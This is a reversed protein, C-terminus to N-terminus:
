YTGTCILTQHSTYQGGPTLSNVNVLYSITYTTQGSSKPAEAITEGSVYRYHNPNNYGPAAEGYGFQGNDPNHGVSSPSINAVLNIGFQEKGAQSVEAGGPDQGMLAISHAGNTPAGGIIQVVYGYSTYNIVSFTSTIVTAQTPSFNGFNVNFGGVEFTLSPAATTLHGANVQLTTSSSNGLGLVGLSSTAQFNASEAGQMSNGGLSAEQFQYSPSKLTDALSLRNLVLMLGVTVLFLSLLSKIIIKM